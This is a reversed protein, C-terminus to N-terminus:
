HLTKDKSDCPSVCASWTSGSSHRQSSSATVDFAANSTRIWNGVLNEWRVLHLDSGSLCWVPWTDAQLLSVTQKQLCRFLTQSASEVALPPCLGFRSCAVQGPFATAIVSLVHIRGIDLCAFCSHVATITHGLTSFIFKLSCRELTRQKPCIFYIVPRWLHPRLFFFLSNKFHMLDALKLPPFIRAMKMRKLKTQSVTM